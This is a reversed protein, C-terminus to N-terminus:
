KPKLTGQSAVPKFPVEIVPDAGRPKVARLVRGQLEMARGLDHWTDPPLQITDAAKIIADRLAANALLMARYLTATTTEKPDM